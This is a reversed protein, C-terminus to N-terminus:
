LVHPPQREHILVVGLVPGRIMHVRGPPCGFRWLPRDGPRAPLGDNASWHHLLWRLHAFYVVHSKQYVHFDFIAAGPHDLRQILENWDQPIQFCALGLHEALRPTDEGRVGEIFASWNESGPPWGFLQCVADRMCWGDEGPETSVYRLTPSWEFGVMTPKVEPVM